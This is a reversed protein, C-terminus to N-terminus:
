GIATIKNLTNRIKVLLKVDVRILIDSHDHQKL